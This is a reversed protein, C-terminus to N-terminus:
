VGPFKDISWSNLKTLIQGMTGSDLPKSIHPMPSMKKNCPLLCPEETQNVLSGCWDGDRYCKKINSSIQLADNDDMDGNTTYYFCITITIPQTRDRELSLSAKENFGGFEGADAGHHISAPTIGRFVPMDFENYPQHTYRSHNHKQRMPIQGFIVVNNNLGTSRSGIRAKPVEHTDSNKADCAKFYTNIISGDPSTRHMFISEVGAGDLQASTGLHSAVFIANKPDDASTTQYNFSTPIFECEGNSDVPLPVAQVRVVVGKEEDMTHDFVSLNSNELSPVLAGFNQLYDSLFISRLPSNLEENGVVIAIRRASLTYVTDNFNDFRIVPLLANDDKRKLTMDTINPGWCSGYSRDVDCWQTCMMYMNHSEFLTKNSLIRNIIDKVNNNKMEDHVCTDTHPTESTHSFSVHPLKQCINVINPEHETNKVNTNMHKESNFM